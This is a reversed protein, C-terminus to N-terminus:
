TMMPYQTEGHGIGNPLPQSGGGERPELSYVTGTAANHGSSDPSLKNEIQPETSITEQPDEVAVTQPEDHHSDRGHGNVLTRRAQNLDDSKRGAKRYRLQVVLSEEKNGDDDEDGLDSEAESMADDEDDGELDPESVDSDDENGSWEEETPPTDSEEDSEQEDGYLRPRTVARGSRQLRETNLFRSADADADPETATEIIAGHETEQEKRQDVLMSEGYFGAYRSKVQRGSATITQGRDELPTSVGSNRASRRVSFGDSDLEDDSFTYKM